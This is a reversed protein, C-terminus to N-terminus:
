QLRGAVLRMTRAEKLIQASKTSHLMVTWYRLPPSRGHQVGSILQSIRGNRRRSNRRAYAGFEPTRGEIRCGIGPDRPGGSRGKINKFVGHATVRLRVPAEVCRGHIADIHGHRNLLDLVLAEAFEEAEHAIFVGEVFGPAGTFGIRGHQDDRRKGAM